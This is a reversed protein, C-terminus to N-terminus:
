PSALPTPLPLVGTGIRTANGVFFTDKTVLLEEGPVEEPLADIELLTSTDQVHAGVSNDRVLSGSVLGGGSAFFLGVGGQREVVSRSISFTSLDVSLVGHGFRPVPAGDSRTLLVRELRVKSKKTASVGIELADVVATDTADITCDLNANFGMGMPLGEVVDGGIDKVLSRSTKVHGGSWVGLGVGGVGVVASDELVLEAGKLSSGGTASLDPSRKVRTVVSRTFSVKAQEAAYLATGESDAVTSEEIRVVAGYAANVATGIATGTEGTSVTGRVVSRVLTIEPPTTTNRRLALLAMGASGLIASETVDVHAGEFARLAGGGKGDSRPSTDQVVCRSLSVRAAASDTAAVAADRSALIATEELTIKGGTGALVAITQDSAGLPATGRLVSRRLAISSGGKAYVARSRASQIVLDEGILAGAATSTALPEVYGDLTLGRVTVKSRLELGPGSSTAPALRTMAACRGALTVSKTITTPATVHAGDALAITSGASAVALADALTRVHTADVVEDALAPDVLIAGPPPFSAACDGVPVCSRDGLRPRTAGTCATPPLVPACGWGSADKEFGAACSTPGVAVCAAAGVAPRTGPACSGTTAFLECTGDSKAHEDAACVAAPPSAPPAGDSSSPADSCGVGFGGGGVVGVTVALALALRSLALRSLALRSLTLSARVM